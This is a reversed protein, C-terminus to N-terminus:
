LTRSKPFFHSLHTCYCVPLCGLRVRPQKLSPMQLLHTHTTSHSAANACLVCSKRYTHAVTAHFNLHYKINSIQFRVSSYLACYGVLCYVTSTKLLIFPLKTYMTFWCVKRLVSSWILACFLVRIYYFSAHVHHVSIRIKQSPTQWWLSHWPSVPLSQAASVVRMVLTFPCAPISIQWMPVCRHGTNQVIALIRFIDITCFPLYFILLCDESRYIRNIIILILSSQAPVATVPYQM